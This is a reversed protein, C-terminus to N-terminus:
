VSAVLVGVAFCDFGVVYNREALVILNNNSTRLAQERSDPNNFVPGRWVRPASGLAFIWAQGAGAAVGNPGTRFNYGGLAAVPTDLKTILQTHADNPHVLHVSAAITAERRSALIVGEGPANAGIYQELIAMGQTVTVPTGPTPTVDISSAAALSPSQIHSGSGLEGEVAREEGNRLMEEARTYARDWNGIPSCQFSGYVTFPFGQRLAVGTTTTKNPASLANNQACTPCGWVSAPGCPQPEWEVGQGWHGNDMEHLEAVSFLGYPLPRVDQAPVYLPQGLCAGSALAM